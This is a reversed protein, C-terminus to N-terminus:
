ILMVMATIQNGFTLTKGEDNGVKPQERKAPKLQLYLLLSFPLSSLREVQVKLPRPFFIQSYPPAIRGASKLVRQLGQTAVHPADKNDDDNNNHNDDDNIKVSLSDLSMM